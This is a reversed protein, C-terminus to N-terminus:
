RQGGPQRGVVGYGGPYGQDGGYGVRQKPHMADGALTGLIASGQGEEARGGGLVVGDQVIYAINYFSDSQSISHGIVNGTAIRYVVLYKSWHKTEANVPQGIPIVQDPAGHIHYIQGEPQGEAVITDGTQSGYEHNSICGILLAPLAALCLGPALRSRLM